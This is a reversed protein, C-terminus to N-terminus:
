CTDYRQEERIAKDPSARPLKRRVAALAMGRARLLSRLDDSLDAPIPRAGVAWRRVTRNAVDLDRAIDTQWRPGYLAEGVERLLDPSM